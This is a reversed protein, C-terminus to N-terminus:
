GRPLSEGGQTDVGMCSIFLTKMKPKDTTAVPELEEGGPSTGRTLGRTELATAGPVSAAWALRKWDVATAQINLLTTPLFQCADRMSARHYWCLPKVELGQCRMLKPKRMIRPKRMRGCGQCFGCGSFVWLPLPHARFSGERLQGRHSLPVWHKSVSHRCGQM